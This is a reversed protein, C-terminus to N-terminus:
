SVTQFSRCCACHTCTIKEQLVSAHRVKLQHGDILPGLLFNVAISSSSSSWLEVLFPGSVAAPWMQAIRAIMDLKQPGKPLYPM